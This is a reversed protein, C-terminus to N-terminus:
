NNNYYQISMVFFVYLARRFNNITAQRQTKKYLDLRTLWDDLIKKITIINKNTTNSRKYVDLCYILFKDSNIEKSTNREDYLFLMLIAEIIAKIEDINDSVIMTNIYNRLENVSVQNTNAATTVLKMPPGNIILKLSINEVLRNIVYITSDAERFNDSDTSEFEDSIYNGSEYNKYWENALQKLFSNLRTKISLIFQAIDKDKGEHIADKYLLYAGYSIDDLTDMLNGFQKIKYKNSLHNITYEMVKDNPQFKWYKTFLSPYFSCGLYFVSLRTLKEDNNMSFYRVVMAMLLKYPDSLNLGTSKIDRSKDKATKIQKPTIDILDYLQNKEYDTFYIIKSPGIDSLTEHNRDIFSGIMAKYKTIKNKDKFSRDVQPYVDTVIYKDAM